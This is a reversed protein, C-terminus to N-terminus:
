AHPLLAEGTFRCVQCDKLRRAHIPHSMFLPQAPARRRAIRKLRAPPFYSLATISRVVRRQTKAPNCHGPIGRILM